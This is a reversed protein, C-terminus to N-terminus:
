PDVGRRWIVVETELEIGRERRVRERIQDILELIDTAACGDHTVVFNAHRQSVEAGGIRLGKCGCQDIIRGASERAGNIDPNRFVCGASRDAMPQSSKKYAMVEKLRDRLPAPDSPELRLDVATIILDELGSRRYAFPIDAREICRTEGDGALAHVREVVDAIQGFAGGANMRVAGGVTAPIGGLGELGALGRRVTELILRPLNAGAEVRVLGDREFAVAKMRELSVVLGDVGEDAVLLNAGDGLIRLQDHHRALDRLEDLTAPRALRDARGGVGFWTPIPADTEIASTLASTM